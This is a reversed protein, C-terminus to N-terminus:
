QLIDVNKASIFILNLHLVITVQCSYNEVILPIIDLILSIKDQICLIALNCNIELVKM